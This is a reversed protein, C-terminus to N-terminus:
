NMLSKNMCHIVTELSTSAQFSEVCIYQVKSAATEADCVYNKKESSNFNRNRIILTQYNWATTKHTSLIPLWTKGSQELFINDMCIDMNYSKWFHQNHM